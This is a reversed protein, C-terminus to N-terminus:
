YNKIKQNRKNHKNLTDPFLFFLFNKNPAQKKGNGSDYEGYIEAAIILKM